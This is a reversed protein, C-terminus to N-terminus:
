ANLFGLTVTWAKQGNSTPGTDKHTSSFDLLGSVMEDASGLQFGTSSLYDAGWVKLSDVYSCGADFQSQSIVTQDNKFMALFHMKDGCIGSNLTLVPISPIGMAYTRYWNNFAIPRTHLASREDKSQWHEKAQNCFSKFRVLEVIRWITKALTEVISIVMNILVAGGASAIEMGLQAGSKLTNYLGEGISFVMARRIAKVITGPHGFLIEVGRSDSWERFKTMTSDITNAVNKALDLGSSILPASAKLFRSVLVNVLKRVMSPLNALLTGSPDRQFNSLKERIDAMIKEAMELLKAVLKDFQQRIWPDSPPAEEDTALQQSTLEEKKPKTLRKEIEAGIMGVPKAARQIEQDARGARDRVNQSFDGPNGEDTVYSLASSSISVAGDLAVKFISDDVTTNGFLYLVGLRSNVLAPAMFSQAGLTVDNDGKGTLQAELLTITKKENRSSSKWEDGTGKSRQWSRLAARVKAAQIASPGREYKQIEDDLRLMEKSRKRAVLFTGKKWEKSSMLDPTSQNLLM